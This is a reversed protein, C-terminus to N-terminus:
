TRGAVRRWVAAHERASREWTFGRARDRGRDALPRVAPDDSAAFILGEAIAAASPEVLVGADGVVETLSSTRAAVVPAGAAMAELAPLGFGEYLSPVVVAAAGALLGPLVEDPLRGVLRTGPLGAFLATRRPHPPGALVLTLDPRAASVARWAEALADLNKRQSAGGAHVVYPGSLDLRARWPASLPEAGFFRDDVGNHIAEVHDLGLHEAVDDASFQSPAVVAAARRLEDAAFPEPDSEDSFRWAVTDHVTIVEPVRAPPMGLGMRHVVDAGRYLTSGALLRAARPARTLVWAPLRVTGALDSRLSRAIERSVTDDPALAAGARRVIEEEYVQQGM